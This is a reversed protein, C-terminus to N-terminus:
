HWEIKIYEYFYTCFRLDKTKIIYIEKNEIEMWKVKVYKLSKKDSGNRKIFTKYEQHILDNRVLLHMWWLIIIIQYYLWIIFGINGSKIVCDGNHKNKAHYM